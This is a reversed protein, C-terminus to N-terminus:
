IPTLVATVKDARTGDWHVLGAQIATEIYRHIHPANPLNALRIWAPRPDPVLLSWAWKTWHQRPLACAPREPFDSLPVLPWISVLHRLEPNRLLSIAAPMDIAACAAVIVREVEEFPVELASETAPETM